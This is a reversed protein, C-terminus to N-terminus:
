EKDNNTLKEDEETILEEEDENECYDVPFHLV